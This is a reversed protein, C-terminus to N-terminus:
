SKNASSSRLRRRLLPNQIRLMELIGRKNGVALHDQSITAIGEVASRSEEIGKEERPRNTKYPALAPNKQVDEATLTAGTSLMKDMLDRARRDPVSSFTEIIVRLASCDDYETEKGKGQTIKVSENPEAGFQLLLLLIDLCTDEFQYPYDAYFHYMDALTQQWSSFYEFQQNPNAGKELLFRVIRPSAQTSSKKDYCKSLSEVAYHLLPRGPKTNIDFKDLEVKEKVYLELGCTIAFSL